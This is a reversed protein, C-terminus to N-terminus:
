REPDKHPILVARQYPTHPAVHVPIPQGHSEHPDRLGETATPISPLQHSGQFMLCSLAAALVRVEVGEAKLGTRKVLPQPIRDKGREVVIGWPILSEKHLFRQYSGMMSASTRPTGRLSDLQVLLLLLAL